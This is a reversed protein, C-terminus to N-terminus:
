YNRCTSRHDSGTRHHVPVQSFKLRLAQTMADMSVASWREADFGRVQRGLQKAGACDPAALIRALTEHDGFTRAKQAMFYHESSPYQVGDEVFNCPFFNSFCRFDSKTHSYFFIESM